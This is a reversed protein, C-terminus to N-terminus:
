KERNFEKILLEKYDTGTPPSDSAGKFSLAYLEKVAKLEGELRLVKERLEKDTEQTEPTTAGNTPTQDSEPAGLPDCDSSPGVFGVCGAPSQAGEEEFISM